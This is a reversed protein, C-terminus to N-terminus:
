PVVQVEDDLVLHDGVQKGDKDTVRLRTLSPQEYLGVEIRYEGPALDRPLTLTYDDRVIEGVDWISTPYAGARPQADNQARVQSNSDLLHVFVTYGKNTKAASQWYLTVDGLHISYGLLAIVNGFRANVASMTQLEALAPPPVSIKFPPTFLKDSIPQKNPSLVPIRGVAEGDVDLELRIMGPEALTAGPIIWPVRVIGEPWRGSPTAVNFLDGSSQAIERDMRDLLRVTLTLPERRIQMARWYFTISRPANLDYGVLELWNDYLGFRAAVRQSPLLNSDTRLIQIEDDDAGFRAVQTYSTPNEDLRGNTIHGLVLYEFGNQTYWEPPHAAIDAVTEVTFRQPDVFPAESDAVVRAGVPLHQDIWLRATLLTTNADVASRLPVIVVLVLALVLCASAFVAKRGMAKSIGV